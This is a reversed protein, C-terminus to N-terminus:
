EQEFLPLFRGYGEEALKDAPVFRLAASNMCYRKSTPPPGDNFVHGLHSAGRKSRVETRVSFFFRHDERTVINEPVLPGAFSPWGTGSEFKDRSSFLPEGSVVDVYIGERKNDWYENKFPPETGDEQTVKYQIDTLKRKLERVGWPKRNEGWIRDLYDDRGSGRRYYKYRLPNELYYNQHYDEAPCFLKAPKIPTVVPNSFIGRAAIEAKSQEARHKQSESTYFIATSYEHGRDVFQGDPDTPDIQMWFVELLRDYSVVEPDYTIKVAEVHGGSGYNEYTPNDADGGSYGSIVATVGDLVEFPEEMCWFCGGAFIAIAM